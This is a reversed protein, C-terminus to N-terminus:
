SPADEEFRYVAVRPVRLVHDGDLYGCRTTRSVLDHLSPDETPTTGVAEHVRGDFAQGDARIERVGATELANGLMDALQPSRESLQDRFRICSAVLTGRDPEYQALLRDIQQAIAQSVGSVGVERLSRALEARGDPGPVPPPPSFAAPSGPGTTPGTAPGYPDPRSGPAGPAGPGRGPAGPARLLHGPPGPAPGLSGSALGPSGPRSSGRRTIGIVAVVGIVILGLTLALGLGLWGFLGGRPEPSRLIVVPSPKQLPTVKTKAPKTDAPKITETPKIPSPPKITQTPKAITAPETPTAPDAPSGGGSTSPQVAESGSAVTKAVTAPVESAYAPLTLGALLLVSVFALLRRM